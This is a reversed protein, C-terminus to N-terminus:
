KLSWGSAFEHFMVRYVVKLSKLCAQCASIFTDIDPFCSKYLMIEM